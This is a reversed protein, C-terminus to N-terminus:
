YREYLARAHRYLSDDHRRLGLGHGGIRAEHERVAIVLTALRRRAMEDQVRAALNSNTSTFLTSATRM